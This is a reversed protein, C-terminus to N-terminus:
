VQCIFHHICLMNKNLLPSTAKVQVVDQKEIEQFETGADEGMLLTPLSDSEKMVSRGIDRDITLHIMTDHLIRKGDEACSYLIEARVLCDGDPSFCVM